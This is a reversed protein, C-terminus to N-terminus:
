VAAKIETPTGQAVLEGAVMLGLRNRQEAEELYHPTVLAAVGRDALRNILKWSERRALPEVGSTPEDLFLARPERMM